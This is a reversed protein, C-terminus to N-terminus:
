FRMQLTLAKDVLFGEVVGGESVLEAEPLGEERM